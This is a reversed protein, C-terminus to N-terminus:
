AANATMASAGTRWGILQPALAAMRMLNHALVYLRVVCRLKALGRVPRRQLGRNRALGPAPPEDGDKGKSPKPRPVPAYLETKGAVADIQAQSLGTTQARNCYARPQRAVRAPAPAIRQRSDM